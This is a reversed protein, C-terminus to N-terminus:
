LCFEDVTECVYQKLTNRQCYISLANIVAIFNKDFQALQALGVLLMHMMLMLVVQCQNGKYKFSDGIRDSPYLKPIVLSSSINRASQFSVM